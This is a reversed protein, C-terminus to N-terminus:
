PRYGLDYLGESNVTLTRTLNEPQDEEATERSTYEGKGILQSDIYELEFGAPPNQGNIQVSSNDGKFYFRIIVTDNTTLSCTWVAVEPCLKECSSKSDTTLKVAKTAPLALSFLIFYVFYDNFKDYCMGHYGTSILM